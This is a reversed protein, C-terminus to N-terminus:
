LANLRLAKANARAVRSCHPRRLTSGDAGNCDRNKSAGKKLLGFMGLLFLADALRGRGASFPAIGHLMRGM